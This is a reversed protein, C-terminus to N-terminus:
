ERQEGEMKKLIEVLRKSNILIEKDTKSQRSLGATYSTSSSPADAVIYDCTTLAKGNTIHFVGAFEENLYDIFKNRTFRGAKTIEGTIVININRKVKPLYTFLKDVLVFDFIYYSMVNIANRGTEGYGLRYRILSDMSAGDNTREVFEKYSSFGAFLKFAIKNFYPLGLKSIVDAFNYKKKLIAQIDDYRKKNVESSNRYPYYHLPLCFIELPSYIDPPLSGVIDHKEYHESSHVNDHFREICRMLDESTSEGIGKVGFNALLTALRMDNKRGCFPNSCWIRTLTNTVELEEDCTPCVSPLIGEYEKPIINREIAESIKM